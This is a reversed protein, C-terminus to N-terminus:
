SLIYVTEFLLRASGVSQRNTYLITYNENQMNISIDPYKYFIWYASIAWNYEYAFITISFRVSDVFYTHSLATIYMQFRHVHM